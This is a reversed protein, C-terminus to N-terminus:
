VHARGIEPRITTDHGTEELEQAAQAADGRDFYGKYPVSGVFLFWWTYPQFDTKPVATLLHSLVPRDVHSYSAYSGGVRLGLEAKAFERVDLVTEFKARLVPDLDETLLVEAIPKRRWLIKGEEYAARIVYGPSCSCVLLLWVLGLFTAHRPAHGRFRM